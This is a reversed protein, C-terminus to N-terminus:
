HTREGRELFTSNGAPSTRQLAFPLPVQTISDLLSAPGTRTPCGLDAVDSPSMNRVDRKEWGGGEKPLTKIITGPRIFKLIIKLTLAPPVMGQLGGRKKGV